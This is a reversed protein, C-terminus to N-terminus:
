IQQSVTTIVTDPRMSDPEQSLPLPYTCLYLLDNKMDLSPSSVAFYWLALPVFCSGCSVHNQSGSALPQHHSPRVKEVPKPPTKGSGVVRQQGRASEPQPLM